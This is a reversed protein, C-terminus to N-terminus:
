EKAKEKLYECLGRTQPYLEVCMRYLTNKKKEEETVKWQEITKRMEKIKEELEELKKRDQAKLRDKRLLLSAYEGELDKLRREYLFLIERQRIAAEEETGKIRLLMERYELYGYVLLGFIFFILIILILRM